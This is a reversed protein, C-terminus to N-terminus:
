TSRAAILKRVVDVYGKALSSAPIVGRERLWIHMSPLRYGPVAPLLHHELHFNVFNPALLLREWWCALTTRTHLRPDPSFCDPLAAHEAANRIRLVLMYVTMYTLLWLGYLWPVGLFVLVALFASHVLLPALLFRKAQRLVDKWNRRPKKDDLKYALTYDALGLSMSLIILLNKIGTIGSLDRLVKRTFSRSTVPYYQYNALDPDDKSGATQHHKLHYTRYGDLDILLPAGCLWRGVWQNLGKTAFLSYHACDHMLIALGLQRGALIGMSVFILLPHPYLSVAVMTLIIAGWNIVLAKCGQYDSKQLLFKLETRSFYQASSGATNVASGENM